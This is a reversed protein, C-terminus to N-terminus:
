IWCKLIELLILCIMSCKMTGGIEDSELNLPMVPDHVSLRLLLWGNGNEKDCSIRVGEYNDPAVTWGQKVQLM